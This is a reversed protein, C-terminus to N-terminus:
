RSPLRDLYDRLRWAHDLASSLIKVLASGANEPLEAIGAGESFFM